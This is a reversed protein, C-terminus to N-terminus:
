QANVISGAITVTAGVVGVTISLWLENISNNTGFYRLVSGSAPTLLAGGTALAGSNSMVQVRADSPISVTWDFQCQCMSCLSTGFGIVLHATDFSEGFPAIAPTTGGFSAGTGTIFSGAVTILSWDVCGVASHICPFTLTKEDFSGLADTVRMTFLLTGPLQDFNFATGSASLLGTANNSVWHPGGSQGVFTWTYPLVGGTAQMQVLAGSQYATITSQSTPTTIMPGATVVINFEKTCTM